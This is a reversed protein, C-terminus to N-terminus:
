GGGNGDGQGDGGGHGHGDGHGHGHRHGSPRLAAAVTVTSGARVQGSPQVSIVTGPETGGNVTWVVHPRLGLQRLRRVVLGARQGVLAAANVTVTRPAPAATSRSTPGAPTRPAAGPSGPAAAFAGTLLWGALGAVLLACVVALPAGRRPRRRDRQSGPRAPAGGPAPPGVLTAPMAQTGGSPPGAPESALVATADGGLADRLRGARQAVEGASAPRAAPDKATLEGILGAVGAPVAAPLPPLARHQHAIAVEVPMGSFPPQGTLCHYGVVGLSYLDSAPTAPGGAAREPALYAPTGVLVGTRTIPASGAAYAIGFDSIKVQNDPGVLLNAPKIDRHVLGAAHAATLGAAAQALVDMAYCPQLPGAALVEALSPGDVLEMVLYPSEAAGAEGYDYVQAIGPHTLSAAHRAEAEFRALTEPHQAYEPRLLKVAVPRALVLDTARWVDGVGGVAIRAELRYRGALMLSTHTVVM